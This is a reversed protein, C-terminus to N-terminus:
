KIEYNTFFLQFSKLTTIRLNKFIHLFHLNIQVFTNFHCDFPKFWSIISSL